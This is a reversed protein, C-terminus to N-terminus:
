KGRKEKSIRLGGAVGTESRCNAIERALEPNVRVLKTVLADLKSRDYSVRVMPGTIAFKGYGRVEAQGGFGKEVVESIQGRLVKETEELPELRDQVSALLDVLVNLTEEANREGEVWEAFASKLKVMM